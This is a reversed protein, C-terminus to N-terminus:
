KTATAHIYWNPFRAALMAAAHKAALESAFIAFCTAGSGSMRVLLPSPLAALADLCQRIAPALAIAAATMDNARPALAAAFADAGTGQWALPRPGAGRPRIHKFVQATAVHVGPNVLLIPLTPIGEVADILRGTERLYCSQSLLCAPVDAGLDQALPLLREFAWDLQWFRNLLRLAAAADASGGGLGAAVPIHKDLYLAAGLRDNGAADRLRRAARLVLNDREAALAAGMPGGIALSLDQAPRAQLREGVDAFVALSDLDHYGDARRALVELYLNIKAWAPEVASAAATESAPTM